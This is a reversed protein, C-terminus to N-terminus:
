EINKRYASFSKNSIRVWKGTEIPEEHNGLILIGSPKLKDYFEELIKGQDAPSLFSVLDRALILDCEPVVNVHLIDHYEFFIRDKLQSTIGIGQKGKITYPLLYSPINEPPLVLNPATSIALLDNDMAWVKLIADPFKSLFLAAMSYTEYGKGCGPNWVSFVKGSFEQILELFSNAFDEPWVMDTYPSYFTRLFEDAEEVSKIQLDRGQKGREARWQEYREELWKENVPTVHFSKFTKLTERIFDKETQGVLVSEKVTSGLGPKERLSGELAELTHAKQVTQEEKGFLKEVDLILYLTGKYEVVGSIYKVNIDGFIPHPPQIDESAIGVVKDISDVIVGIIYDELRLILGNEVGDKRKEVPLHFFIRLDIISIIEGRLNYVGRVFPPTNPVYTFQSFKAIEKVKMIDIGYDKGGLSFTVMKFDQKIQKVPLKEQDMLLTKEITNPM